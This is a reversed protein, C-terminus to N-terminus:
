SAVFMQLQAHVSQLQAHVSQLQAHVSKICDVGLLWAAVANEFGGFSV